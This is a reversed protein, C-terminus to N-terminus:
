CFHFVTRKIHIVNALEIPCAAKIEAPLSYVNIWTEMTQWNTPFVVPDLKDSHGVWVDVQTTDRSPVGAYFPLNQCHMFEHRDCDSRTAAGVSEVTAVAHRIRAAIVEM